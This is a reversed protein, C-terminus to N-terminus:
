DNEAEEKSGEMNKRLKDLIAYFVEKEEDTIGKEM